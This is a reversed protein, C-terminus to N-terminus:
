EIQVVLPPPVFSKFVEKSVAEWIADPRNVTEMTLPFNLDAPTTKGNKLSGQVINALFDPPALTHNKLHTTKIETDITSFIPVRAGELKSMTISFLSCSSACRGNSIIVVDKAKFLGKRPPDVDFPQCEQGLRQSFADEHGNITLNTLPKLWDTEPTFPVHSANSWKSPNYLLETDPDMGDKIIRQVILQALPGARTTTDLGAQPETTSRSGIIIRHLWHAICIYGGGNNTVDVLLQTAGLSKLEVLGDLLSHQFASFNATSFSGLALVGTSNDPLLYFQAVSYSENLAPGPQMIEPLDIDSLPLADVLVNMAHRRAEKRSILPQQQFYAIPLPEESEQQASVAYVDVGNTRNTALCNNIRYSASDTFNKSASGFRSRYPLTITDISTSNIRRIALKVADTLPHVQQAFNGMQYLWGSDGRYYSSFFSNQRTAYSQYGGTVLANANVAAFPDQDNISLVQAGSLRLQGKLKGPLANQWFEIEDGFEASAIAFAEPAIHVNQQGDAATLLVLPTPLYSVYLSDYCRNIVVCHGDNLRRFAYFVDLHFEFESSYEQQKIRALDKHLDEHVDKDFPKPASIQYNVSTHMAITKNVVEIINDKIEPVVPFSYICQRAELPSVWQKGAIAACYDPTPITEAAALAAFVLPGVVVM